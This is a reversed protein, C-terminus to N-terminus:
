KRKNKLKAIVVRDIKNYDKIVQIDEFDKQLIDVIDSSQKIGIEFFLKGNKNLFSPASAVIKKYFDLGDEGGDLALKPDYDKVEVDLKNIDNSPIYPPNSVIIDFKKVNKLNDFLNSNVFNVTVNNKEANYKAVDLAKNSIDVATVIASTNKAICIAIIGSGTGIDLVRCKKDISKIVKEVLIETEMRPSLVDKTVKFEYGYFETRGFIKSIPEGKIRRQIVEDLKKKSEYSIKTLLRIQGRSIGLVECVLWDTESKDTIGANKLREKCEAYVSSFSVENDKLLETNIESRKKNQMFKVEGLAAEAIYMETKTPRETVIFSTILCSYKLWKPKSNELILLIEYSISFSSIAVIINVLIKWFENSTLGIFSQIVFSLMFSFIIFNLLNTPKHISKKDKDILLNACGNFRYFQRFPIFFKISLMIVYFIVLKIILILLRNVIVSSSYGSILLALRPPLYGMLFLSIILSIALIISFAVYKSDVSLKKSVKNSLSNQSYVFPAKVINKILFYLGFILYEIGRIFAINHYIIKHKQKKSILYTKGKDDVYACAFNKGQYFCVGYLCPISYFKEM